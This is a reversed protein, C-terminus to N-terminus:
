KIPALGYRKAAQFDPKSDKVAATRVVLDIDRALLEGLQGRSIKVGLKALELTQANPRPESGTVTAGSDFLIRALGSMGCGGIGIFHVRRGCFRSASTGGQPVRDPSDTRPESVAQEMPPPM